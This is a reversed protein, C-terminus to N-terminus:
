TATPAPEVLATLESAMKALELARLDLDADSAAEAARRLWNVADARDGRAWMASAISLKDSVDEPDDDKPEPIKPEAM